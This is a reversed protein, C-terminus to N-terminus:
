LLKEVAAVIEAKAIGRSGVMDHGFKSWDVDKFAKTVKANKTKIFFLTQAPTKTPPFIDGARGGKHRFALTAEKPDKVFTFYESTRRGKVKERPKKSRKWIQVVSPVNYPEGDEGEAPLYFANAPLDKQDVLEFEMDLQNQVSPRKFTKPFIGGIYDAFETAKNFFKIALDSKKGYPPNMMVFTGPKKPHSSTLFNQKKIWDKRPHLDYATVNKFMKTMTGEGACPDITKKVDKYFPHKKIWNALDKAIDPQIFFQDAEVGGAKKKREAQTIEFLKM